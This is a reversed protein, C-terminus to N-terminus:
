LLNIEALILKKNAQRQRKKLGRCKFPCDHWGSWGNHKGTFPDVSGKYSKKVYPAKHFAEGMLKKGRESHESVYLMWFSPDLQRSPKKIRSRYTM